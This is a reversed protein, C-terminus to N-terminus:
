EVVSIHLVHTQTVFGSHFAVLDGPQCKSVISKACDDLSGEKLNFTEKISAVKWPWGTIIGNCVSSNQLLSAYSESLGNSM